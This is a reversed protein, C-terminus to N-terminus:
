LDRLRLSYTQLQLLLQCLRRRSRLSEPLVTVGSYGAHATGWTGYYGSNNTLCHSWTYAVQGELGNSLRQQLVSQLADYHMYGTSSTGSVTSIDALLAPNGQFYIGPEPRGNVLREQAYPTPVMLHTGHQGVYGVQLTTAPTFANQVTLNWQQDMAPQVTKDWVYM